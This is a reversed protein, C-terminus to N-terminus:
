KKTEEPRGAATRAVSAGGTDTDSGQEWHLPLGDASSTKGSGPRVPPLTHPLERRTKTGSRLSSNNHGRVRRSEPCWDSLNSKTCFVGAVALGLHRRLQEVKYAFAAVDDQKVVRKRRRCEAVVLGDGQGRLAIDLTWITGGARFPVDVGDGKLPALDHHERILVDRCLIQYERNDGHAEGSSM